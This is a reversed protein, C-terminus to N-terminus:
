EARGAKERGQGGVTEEKEYGPEATQLKSDTVTKVM